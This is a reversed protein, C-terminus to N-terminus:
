ATHLDLFVAVGLEQQLLLVIAETELLLVLADPLYIAFDCLGLRQQQTDGFSRKRSIRADRRCRELFGRANKGFRCDGTPDVVQAAQLLVHNHPPQNRGTGAHLVVAVDINFAILRDILRPLAVEILKRVDDTTVVDHQRRPLRYHDWRRAMAVYKSGRFRLFQIPSNGYIFHGAADISEAPWKADM